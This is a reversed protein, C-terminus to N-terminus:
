GHQRERGYKQDVNAGTEIAPSCDCPRGGWIGCDDDHRVEVHVVTGPDPPTERLHALLAQLYRPQSTM